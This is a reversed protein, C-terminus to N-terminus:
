GFGVVKATVTSLSSEKRITLAFTRDKDLGPDKAEGQPPPLPFSLLGVQCVRVTASPATTPSLSILAGLGFFSTLSAPCSDKSGGATDSLIGGRLGEGVIKGTEWNCLHFHRGTKNQM